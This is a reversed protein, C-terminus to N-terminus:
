HRPTRALRRIHATPPPPPLRVSTVCVVRWEGLRAHLRASVGGGVVTGRVKDIVVDFAGDPFTMATVNMVEWQMGARNANATRMQAIVAESYDVSVIATYGADYMDASLASNGCGIVLVSM